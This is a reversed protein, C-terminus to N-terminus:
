KGTLQKKLERIIDKVPKNTKLSLEFSQQSNASLTLGDVSAVADKLGPMAALMLSVAPYTKLIQGANISASLCKGKAVPLDGADTKECASDALKQSNTLYLLGNRVGFYTDVGEHSAFFDSEGRKTVNDWDNANKLFDTNSLTATLLVEPQRTDIRPVAIMVDGDIAKLMMDADVVMNLGLLATRLRPQKRLVDLLTEGKVNVCLWFIPNAPGFDALKGQVPQLLGEQMLPEATQLAASLTIDQKGIGLAANLRADALNINKPLKRVYEEPLKDLTTSLRLFGEQQKIGDLVSIDQRDQKMLKMMEPRLADQESEPVSMFLLAKDEDVCGINSGNAIWQFSQQEEDAFGYSSITQVFKKADKLSLTIGSLGKETTFAYVPETLDVAKLADEFNLVLKQVDETELGIGSIFEAPQFMVVSTADAPLVDRGKDNDGMFIQAYIPHLNPFKAIVRDAAEEAKAWEAQGKYIEANLYLRALLMNAAPKTARYITTEDRDYLDELLGHDADGTVKYSSLPEGTKHNLYTKGNHGNEIEDVLWEYLSARDIQEPNNTSITVTFPVSGFMDLLHYYNVARIFRVEARKHIMEPDTAGETLDLFHNSMTVGYNLRNYLKSVFANSPTWSIMLLDSCGVDGRWTWWGADTPFENLVCLTRFFGSYGEDDTIIDANGGGGSQGTQVFACYLKGYLGDIIQQETESSYQLKNPDIPELDMCATFTLALAAVM